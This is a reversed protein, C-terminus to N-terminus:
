DLHSRNPNKFLVGICLVALVIVLFWLGFAGGDKLAAPKPFGDLRPDGMDDDALAIIPLVIAMLASLLLYFRPRMVSMM